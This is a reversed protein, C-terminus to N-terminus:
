VQHVSTRNSDITSQRNTNLPPLLYCDFLSIFYVNEAQTGSSRRSQDAALRRLSHETPANSSM